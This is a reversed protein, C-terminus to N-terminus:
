ERVKLSTAKAQNDFHHVKMLDIQPVLQDRDWIVHAFRDDFPTNIIEQNKLYLRKCIYDGDSYSSLHSLLYHLMPYDYGMNNFGIMVSGLKQMREILAIILLLENKRASIEYVRRQQTNVSMVSMTFANPYVELDYVYGNSLDMLEAGSKRRRDPV